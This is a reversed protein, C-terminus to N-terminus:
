SKKRTSSSWRATIMASTEPLPTGAASKMTMALVSMLFWAWAPISGACTNSVTFLWSHSFLSAPINTVAKRPTSSM